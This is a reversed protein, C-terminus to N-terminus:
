LAHSEQYVREDFRAVGAGRQAYIIEKCVEPRVGSIHLQSIICVWLAYRQRKEGSSSKFKGSEVRDSCGQSHDAINAYLEDLVVKFISIDKKCLYTNKFYQAIHASYMPYCESAVKWLSPKKM